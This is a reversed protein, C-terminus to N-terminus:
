KSALSIVQGSSSWKHIMLTSTKEIIRNEKRPKFGGRKLFRYLPSEFAIIVEKEKNIFIPTHKNGIEFCVIAMDRLTAPQFVICDCPIIQVVIIDKGEHYIIDGHYLQEQALHHIAIESGGDTLMRLIKKTTDYWELQLVDIKCNSFRKADDYLNAIVRDVKIM